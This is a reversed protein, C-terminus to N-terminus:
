TPSAEMLSHGRHETLSKIWLIAPPTFGYFMHKEMLLSHDIIDFAAFFSGWDKEWVIMLWKHLRQAQQTDERYAHQFDTTLKNVTFYYQTQDFVM